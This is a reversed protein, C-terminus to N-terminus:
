EAERNNNDNIDDAGSIKINRVKNDLLGTKQTLNKIQEHQVSLKSSIIILLFLIMIIALFLLIGLGSGSAGKIYQYVLFIERSFVSGLFFIISTVLWLSAYEDTLKKRRILILVFILILLAFFTGISRLIFTM